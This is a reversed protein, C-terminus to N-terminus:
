MSLFHQSCLNNQIDFCYAIQTCLMNQVQLKRKSFEFEIFLRDDRQPNTSALILAESLSKGTVEM